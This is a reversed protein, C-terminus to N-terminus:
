SKTANIAKVVAPALKKAAAKRQELTDKIWKSQLAMAVKPMGKINKPDIKMKPKAPGRYASLKFTVNGLRVNLMGDTNSIRAEDGVGSVDEYSVGEKPMGMKALDTINGATKKKLNTDLEKRKQVEAKVKEMEQDLQAKTKNATSNKFWLKARDLSKHVMILMLQANLTQDDKNWSYICGMIKTQKLEKAPVDFAGSVMEPTLFDCAKKRFEKDEPDFMGSLGKEKLAEDVKKEIAKGASEDAIMKDGDTSKDGCSVTFAVALSLCLACASVSNFMPRLNSSQHQSALGTM